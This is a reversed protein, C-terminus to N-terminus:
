VYATILTIKIKKFIFTYLHMDLPKILLLCIEIETIRENVTKKIIHFNSM